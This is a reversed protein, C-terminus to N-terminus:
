RIALGEAGAKLETSGKAGAKLEQWSWGAEDLVLGSFLLNGLHSMNYQTAESLSQLKRNALTAM